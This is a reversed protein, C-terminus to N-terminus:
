GHHAARENEPECEDAERERRRGRILSAHCRMAALKLEPLVLIREVEVEPLREGAASLVQRGRVGPAQLLELHLLPHFSLEQFLLLKLACKLCPLVDLMKRSVDTVLAEVVLTSREVALALKLRLLELELLAPEHLRHWASRELRRDATGLEIQSLLV